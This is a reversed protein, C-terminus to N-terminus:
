GETSNLQDTLNKPDSEPASQNAQFFNGATPDCAQSAQERFDEYDNADVRNASMIDPSDLIKDYLRPDIDCTDYQLDPNGNFRSNDTIGCAFREMIQRVSLNADKQVRFQEELEPSPYKPPKVVECFDITSIM